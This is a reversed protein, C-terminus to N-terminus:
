TTHDLVLFSRDPEYQEFLLLFFESPVVVALELRVCFAQIGGIVGELQKFMWYVFLLMMAVPRHRKLVTHSDFSGEVPALKKAELLPIGVEGFINAHLM